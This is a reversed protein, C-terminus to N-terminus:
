QPAHIFGTDTGSSVLRNEIAPEPTFQSRLNAPGFSLNPNSEKIGGVLRLRGAGNLKLVTGPFCPNRDRNSKGRVAVELEAGDVKSFCGSRILMKEQEFHRKRNIAVLDRQPDIRIQCIPHIFSDLRRGDQFRRVVPSQGADLEDVVTCRRIRVRNVFDPKAIRRAIRNPRNDM